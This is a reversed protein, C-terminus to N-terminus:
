KPVEHLYVGTPLKRPAPRAPDYEPMSGELRDAIWAVFREMHIHFEDDWAELQTESLAGRSAKEWLRTVDRHQAHVLEHTLTNRIGDPKLEFFDKALAINLVTHNDHQWTEAHADEDSAPDERLVIDWNDMRLASRLEALYACLRRRNTITDAM